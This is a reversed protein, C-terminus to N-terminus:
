TDDAVVHLDRDVGLMMQDDLVLHGIDAPLLAGVPTRLPSAAPPATVLSSTEPRLNGTLLSFVPFKMSESSLLADVLAGAESLGANIESAMQQQTATRFRRSLLKQSLANEIV